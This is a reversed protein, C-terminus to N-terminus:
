GRDAGDQKEGGRARPEHAPRPPDRVVVPSRGDEERGGSEKDDNGNEKGGADEIAPTGESGSGGGRWGKSVKEPHVSGRSLKAIVHDIM